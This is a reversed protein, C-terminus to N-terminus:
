IVNKEEDARKRELLNQLDATYAHPEDTFTYVHRRMEKYVEEWMDANKVQGGKATRWDNKQWQPLWGNNVSHLVHGCNTFVRVACTGNLRGLAELLAVLELRNETIDTRSGFGSKILPKGKWECELIYAYYAKNKRAGKATTAIYINVEQM